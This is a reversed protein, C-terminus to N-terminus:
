PLIIMALRDVDRRAQQEKRECQQKMSPPMWPNAINLIHRLVEQLERTLEEISQKVTTEMNTVGVTRNGSQMIAYALARYQPILTRSLRRDIEILELAFNARKFLFSPEQELLASRCLWAGALVALLAFLRERAQISWLRSHVCSFSAQSCKSQEVHEEIIAAKWHKTPEWGNPFVFRHAWPESGDVEDHGSRQEASVEDRPLSRRRCCPCVTRHWNWVFDLCTATVIGLIWFVLTTFVGGVIEMSPLLVSLLDMRSGM